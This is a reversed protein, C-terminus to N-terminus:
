NPAYLFLRSLIGSAAQAPAQSTSVRIAITNEVGPKLADTVDLEMQCPRIYAERYPRHGAFQGNVWCWAETEIVPAYLMVKKGKASAPVKVKLRYWMQGTYTHGAEDTYGQAYFPHTTLVGPWGKDNFAPKYWEAFLGDDHPDTSFAAKEPLVAILDGTKGSTM